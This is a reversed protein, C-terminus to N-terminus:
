VLRNTLAGLKEVEVEVVDGKKLWPKNAMGMAVGSPTGTIILDGPELTFFQSCYSIIQAVSFIMDSTNSDQRTEGNVKCTLRLKQPDGVEDATVLYPGIPLFKDPTKGLLWQSTRNQLDRVSLDNATCYGLVYSLADEESVNRCRQGIVVGLEAEYDFQEAVDTILPVDENHGALTNSFKSFVVPHTPIPQGSEAAHKAYNLGICIIKGPNSVCPGLTLGAEDHLWSEGGQVKGALSSLASRGSEDLGAITTPPEAGLASGAAAVDIVGKDTVVGSKAEGNAVFTLLKM